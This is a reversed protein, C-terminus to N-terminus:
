KKKNIKYTIKKIRGTPYTRKCIHGEDNKLQAPRSYLMICKVFNYKNRFVCVLHSGNEKTSELNLIYILNDKEIENRTFVKIRTYRLDQTINQFNFNTDIGYIFLFIAFNM